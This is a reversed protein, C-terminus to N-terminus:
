GNGSAPDVREARNHDAAISCLQKHNGCVRAFGCISGGNAVSADHDFRAEAERPNRRGSLGSLLDCLLFM